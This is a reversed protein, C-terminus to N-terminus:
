RPLHLAQEASSGASIVSNDIDRRHIQVSETVLFATSVQPLLMKDVSMTSISALRQRPDASTLPRTCSYGDGQDLWSGRMRVARLRARPLASLGDAASYSPRLRMFVSIGGSLEGAGLEDIGTCM